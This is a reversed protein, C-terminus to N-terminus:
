IKKLLNIIFAALGAAVLPGTPIGRFFATGVISGMLLGIMAGPFGKMLEIGDRAMAASLIGVVFCILGERTFISGYVDRALITGSGLPMLVGIVLLIVGVDLVINQSSPSRPLMDLFSFILLVGASIYILRNRSLLGIALILFLLSYSKL